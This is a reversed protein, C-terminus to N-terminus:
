MCQGFTQTKYEKDQSNDETHLTLSGDLNDYDANKQTIHINDGTTSSYNGESHTM